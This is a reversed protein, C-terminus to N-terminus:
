LAASIAFHPVNVLPSGSSVECSGLFMPDGNTGNSLQIYGAM